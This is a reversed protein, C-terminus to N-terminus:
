VQRFTIGILGTSVALYKEFTLANMNIQTASCEKCTDSVLVVFPAKSQCPPAQLAFNNDCRFCHLRSSGDRSNLHRMVHHLSIQGWLSLISRMHPLSLMPNAAPATIFIRLQQTRM